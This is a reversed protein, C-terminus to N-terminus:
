TTPLFFSLYFETSCAELYSSSLGWLFVPRRGGKLRQRLKARVKSLFCLDSDTCPTRHPPRCVAFWIQSAPYYFVRPWTRRLQISPSKHLYRQFNIEIPRKKAMKVHITFRQSNFMLAEWFNAATTSSVSNRRCVISRMGRTEVGVGRQGDGM